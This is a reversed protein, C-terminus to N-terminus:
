RKRRKPPVLGMACRCMPHAPPYPVNDNTGTIFLANMQVRQGAMPLCVTPDLRDDPTVIWEKQINSPLGGARGSNAEWLMGQGANAARISETRAIVTARRRLLRKALRATQKDIEAQAVGEGALRGMLKEIQVVDSELLGICKEILVASQKPALGENFAHLMIRNLGKQGKQTLEQVLDAAHTKAFNAAMPHALEMNLSVGAPAFREAAKGAGVATDYMVAEMDATMKPIVRDPWGIAAEVQDLRGSKFAKEIADKIKPAVALARNRIFYNRFRHSQKDAELHIAKYEALTEGRPKKPLDDHVRLVRRSDMEIVAAVGEPEAGESWPLAQKRGAPVAIFRPAPELVENTKAKFVDGEPGASALGAAERAENRTVLGANFAERAWARRSDQSEQLEEIGSLDFRISLNQGFEKAVGLTLQEGIRAFMPALTERWFSIRAERYNSYTSRMLGIRTGLLIPPVHFAACIRSETVDLIGDLKLKDPRTGTEQYDADADLVSISHWGGSGHKEQWLSQLREREGKEVRAKLKLLGGPEAGNEFFARLYDIARDDMDASRLCSVIPSLGWYDDLPDPLKEHIVDEAPLIIKDSASRKFIYEKVMGTAAPVIEIRSPRLLWLEAPRGRGNRLKHIFYNGTVQFDIVLAELFEFQTQSRNPKDLLTRLPHAESVERVQSGRREEVVLRPAATSAAIEDVCTRILVNSRYGEDAFLDFDRPQALGRAVAGLPVVRSVVVEGGEDHKKERKRFPNLRLAL